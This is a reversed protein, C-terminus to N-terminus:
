HLNNLKLGITLASLWSISHPDKVSLIKIYKIYHAMLILTGQPGNLSKLISTYYKVFLQLLNDEHWMKDIWVM